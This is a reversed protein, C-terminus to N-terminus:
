NVTTPAPRPPPCRGSARGAECTPRLHRHAPRPATQPAPRCCNRRPSLSRLALTSDSQSAESRFASWAASSAPKSELSKFADVIWKAFFVSRTHRTRLGGAQLKLLEFFPFSRCIRGAGLRNLQLINCLFNSFLPDPCYRWIDGSQGHRLSSSARSSWGRLAARKRLASSSASAAPNLSSVCGAATIQCNKRATCSCNASALFAKARSSAFGQLTTNQGKSKRAPTSLDLEVVIAPPLAFHAAWNLWTAFGAVRLVASWPRSVPAKRSAIATLWICRTNPYTRTLANAKSSPSAALRGSAAVSRSSQVKM